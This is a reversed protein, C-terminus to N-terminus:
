RYILSKRYVFIDKVFRALIRPQEKFMQIFKENSNLTDWDVIKEKVKAIFIGRRISYAPCELVFHQQDELVGGNCIRCVRNARSENQYRGTELRIQLVGYRLQALLSREYRPINMKVYPEVGYSSKIGALFDLKPKSKVDDVWQAQERNAIVTRTSEIDIPESRFYSERKGIKILLQKVHASFNSKNSLSHQEKDWMFIKKLIRDNDIGILRNWLRLINIEWRGRNSVWGMDGVHGLKPAYKHVGIFFRTTRNQVKDLSDYGKYGWIASGYDIIPAVLSNYLKTYCTSPNGSSM